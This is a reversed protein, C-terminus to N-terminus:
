EARKPLQCAEPSLSVSLMRWCKLLVPENLVIRVSLSVSRRAADVRVAVSGNSRSQFDRSETLGFPRSPDTRWLVTGSIPRDLSCSSFGIRVHVSRGEDPLDVAPSVLSVVGGNREVIEFTRQIDDASWSRIAPQEAQLLSKECTSWEVPGGVADAGIVFVDRGLREATDGGFTAATGRRWTLDKRCGSLQAAESLGNRFVYAGDIMDRADVLVTAGGPFRGQAMRMASLTRGVENSAESWSSANRNAAVGWFAVLALGCAVSRRNPSIGRGFALLAVCAPWYLFRSGSHDPMIGLVPVTPILALATAAAVLLLRRAGAAWGSGLVVLGVMLCASLPAIPLASAGPNKLPILVLYPVYLVATKAFGGFEPAWVSPAGSADLYGGVGELVALRLLVYFVAVSVLVGVFRRLRSWPVLFPLSLPLTLISEKCLLGLAFLAAAIARARAADSSVAIVVASGFLCAWLDFSGSLWVVPEGFLPFVIWLAAMVLSVIASGSQRFTFLGIVGGIATHLVLSVVHLLDAGGRLSSLTWVLAPIPRLTRPYSSDITLARLLRVLGGRSHAVYSFDDSLLGDGVHSGFLVFTLALL